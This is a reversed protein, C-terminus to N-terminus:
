FQTYMIFSVLSEVDDKPSPVKGNMVDLSVYLHTGAIEARQQMERQKGSMVSIFKEMLGFDIFYVKEKGGVSKLMFNEPKM